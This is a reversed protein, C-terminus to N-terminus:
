VEAPAPRSQCPWRRRCRSLCSSWSPPGASGWRLCWPAGTQIRWWWHCRSWRRGRWTPWSFWWQCQCRCLRCWFILDEPQDAGEPDPPSMKHRCSFLLKLVMQNSTSLLSSKIFVVFIKHRCYFLNSTSLSSSKINFIFFGNQKDPILFILM